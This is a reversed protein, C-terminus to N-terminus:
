AYPRTEKEDFSAFFGNPVAKGTSEIRFQMEYGDNLSQRNTHHAADDDTDFTALTTWAATGDTRAKLVLQSDSPLPESKITAGNLSLKKGQKSRYKRTELIKADTFQATTYYVNSDTTAAWVRLGSRHVAQINNSADDLGYEVSLSGFENVAMVGRYTVSNDTLRVGFYARDDYECEGDLTVATDQQFRNVLKARESSLSLEYVRLEPDANASVQGSGDDLLVAIPAGNAKMVFKVRGADFINKATVTTLASNRDWWYVTSKNTTSNYGGILLYDGYATGSTIVFNTPLTLAAATFTSNDWSAVKNDYLFYLNDDAPHYVAPATTSYSVAQWTSAASAGATTIRWFHSGARSGYLYGKYAIFFNGTTGSAGLSGVSEWRTNNEVWDYIHIDGSSVGQGFVTGGSETFLKIAAQTITVEGFSLTSASFDSTPEAREPRTTDYGYILGFGSSGRLQDTM